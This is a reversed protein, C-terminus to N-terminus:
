PRTTPWRGPWRSASNSGVPCRRRDLRPGTTLGVRALLQAAREDADAGRTGAFNAAVAINETASLADLLAYDQFIFGFTTARLVPLERESTRALDVRDHNRRTVLVSGATPRLLAGLMLLLTTKGSGSPGM